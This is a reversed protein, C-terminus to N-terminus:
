SNVPFSILKSTLLCVVANIVSVRGFHTIDPIISLVLMLTIIILYYVTRSYCFDLVRIKCFLFDIYEELFVVNVIFSAMAATTIISALINKIKPGGIKEFLIELRHSDVKYKNSLRLIM